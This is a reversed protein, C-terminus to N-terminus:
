FRQVGHRVGSIYAGFDCRFDGVLRLEGRAEVIEEV